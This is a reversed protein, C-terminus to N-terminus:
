LLEVAASDSPIVNQRGLARDNKSDNGATMSKDIRKKTLSFPDAAAISTAAEQGVPVPYGALQNNRFREV